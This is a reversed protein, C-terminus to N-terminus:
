GHPLGGGKRWRGGAQKGSVQLVRITREGRKESLVMAPFLGGKERERGLRPYAFLYSVGANQLGNPEGKGQVSRRGV